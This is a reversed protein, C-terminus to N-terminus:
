CLLVTARAVQGPAALWGHERVLGLWPAHLRLLLCRLRLTAMCGLMLLVTASLCVWVM